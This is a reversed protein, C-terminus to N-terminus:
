LETKYEPVLTKILKFFKKHENEKCAEELQSIIPNLEHWEIMKENARFILENQTISPNDVVLLEEYLKEGPRLGTFKIEIDGDPNDKDLLQLGSLKIMKLALDHIRVPDGMNLIFVDGGNGMAGAQIVLEVAEPITMFYRVMNVDTVTIPGGDRIQKIFLPIVSGSSNLVNGFRVMTFCTLNKEKAFAQLILEAIRKGAGMISTPRVAKDTSILVFTEVNASIAAQAAFLTGMVNNLTGELPNSEVLPVHKYAAAHYITSVNFSRFVDIMRKKDRVSGLVSIIEISSNMSRLELDIHYLGVESIDFLILKLPKLALIQRCLESGISGGAGTVLVVKNSIKIKLLMDNSKAIERGLLENTNIQLLDNIKVRGEVLESFSPITRVLISLKNLKNVIKLRQNRSILPLAIFVETVNKTTILNQIKSYSVVKINNIYNGNKELDDDIFAILNYKKSAKLSSALKRGASGSGYIVVNKKRVSDLKKQDNLIWRTFIRIFGLVTIVLVLNILIVSRPIGDFLIMYGLLGWALSYLTGAQAISILSNLGIYRTISNYMKFSIFTPIAILPSSFILILLQDNPWYLYDLRLSFSVLLLIIVLISDNLIM